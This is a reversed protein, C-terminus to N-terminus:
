YSAAHLFPVVKFALNFVAIRYDRKRPSLAIRFRMMNSRKAFVMPPVLRVVDKTEAWIM